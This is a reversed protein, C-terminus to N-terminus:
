RRSRITGAVSANKLKIALELDRISPLKGDPADCLCATHKEQFADTSINGGSHVGLNEYEDM